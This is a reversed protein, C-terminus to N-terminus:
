NTQIIILLGVTATSFICPTIGKMKLVEVSQDVNKQIWSTPICYVLTMSLFFVAILAFFTKAFPKLGKIRGM